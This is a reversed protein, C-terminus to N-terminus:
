LYILILFIIYIYLVFLVFLCFFCFCIPHGLMQRQSLDHDWLGPILDWMLTGASLRSRGRGTDRGRERDRMFLYIFDKGFFFIGWLGERQLHHGCSLTNTQAKRSSHRCSCLCVGKITIKKNHYFIYLVSDAKRVM